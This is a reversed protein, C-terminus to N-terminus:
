PKVEHFVRVGQKFAQIVVLVTRLKEIDPEDGDKIECNVIGADGETTLFGYVRAGGKQGGRSTSKLEWIPSSKLKELYRSERGHKTLDSIMKIMM